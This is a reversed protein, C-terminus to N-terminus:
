FIGVDVVNNDAKHSSLFKFKSTDLLKEYLSAVIPKQQM